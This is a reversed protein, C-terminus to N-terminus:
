SIVPSDIKLVPKEKSFCVFLFVVVPKKFKVLAEFM